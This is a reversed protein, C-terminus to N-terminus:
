SKRGNGNESLSTIIQLTKYMPLGVVNYYCGEIKKVFAAGKQQIGYAGAKDNPENTIIYNDIEQQSLNKFFVKTIEQDKQVIFGNKAVAIGTIVEHFNGSLRQLMQSADAADIPKGLPEENLFVLTDFGLVFSDPNLSSVEIAKQAALAAPVDTYPIDTPIIEECSSPIVKFPIGVQDLIDKRRPSQSALIIM